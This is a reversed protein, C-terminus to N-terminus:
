QSINWWSTTNTKRRTATDIKFARMDSTHFDSCEARCAVSVWLTNPRSVALFGTQLLGGKEGREEEWQGEGGGWGM